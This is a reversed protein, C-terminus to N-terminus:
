LFKFLRVIASNNQFAPSTSIALLYFKTETIKKLSKTHLNNFFYTDNTAIHYNVINQKSHLTATKYFHHLM